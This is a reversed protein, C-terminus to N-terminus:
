EAEEIEFETRCLECVYVSMEHHMTVMRTQTQHCQPCRVPPRWVPPEEPPLGGEEFFDEKM